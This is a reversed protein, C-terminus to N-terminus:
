GPLRAPWGQEQIVRRLDAEFAQFAPLQKLPAIDQIHLVVDRPRIEHARSRRRGPGGVARERAQEFARKPDCAEIEHIRPLSLYGM